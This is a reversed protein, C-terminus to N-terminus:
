KKREAKITMQWHASKEPTLLLDRSEYVLNLPIAGRAGRGLASDGMALLSVQL